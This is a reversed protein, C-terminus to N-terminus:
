SAIRSLLTSIKVIGGCVECRSCASSETGNACNLFHHSYWKIRYLLACLPRLRVLGSNQSTNLGAHFEAITGFFIILPNLHSSNIWMVRFSYWLGLTLLPVLDFLQYFFHHSNNCTHQNNINQKLM